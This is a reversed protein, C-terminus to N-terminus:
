RQPAALWFRGGLVTPVVTCRICRMPAASFRAGSYVGTEPWHARAGATASLICAPCSSQPTSNRRADSPFEALVILPSGTV